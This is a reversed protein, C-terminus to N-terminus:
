EPLRLDQWGAVDCQGYYNWGVAVATGDPKLGVTHYCGACVTVIDSWSSIECQGFCNDGAAVVTGDSKIGVVHDFDVSIAVIDFWTEVDSQSYSDSGVIVVTGDAKLGVTNNNGAGIAVIDTWTSVDLQGESYVQGAVVLTGDAKLGVTHHFGASIAVIDSWSDVDCQGYNNLGVAVVTGDAKLGVTFNQGASVAVIDSWASVDCQGDRNWGVAVVTGDTKLGVTHAGLVSVAVIDSWSDVDCQGYYNSGVAVVTGDAKLGVTIGSDASITERVTIADWCAFSRERADRFHAIAYFLTAAEYYEGNELHAEAQLYTITLRCEEAKEESDKYSGLSDFIDAAESYKEQDMLEEAQRYDLERRCLAAKKGSDEYDKLSEFIEAARSYNEQEMLKEARSYRNAPLLFIVIVAVALVAALAAALRGLRKRDRFPAEKESITNREEGSIARPLTVTKDQAPKKETASGEWPSCIVAVTEERQPRMIDVTKDRPPPKGVISEEQPRSAQESATSGRKRLAPIRAKSIHQAAETRAPFLDALFSDMDPYRDRPRLSFGKELAKRQHSALGAISSWDPDIGETMRLTAEEPVTGTLCFWVTACMAYEDTWPGLSGRTNYQEMPAFGHKLIAETSKTLNKDVHPNNVTRVAGFDLLKAGGAPDLIINDPSIDRHVIGGKHIVALAEMVPRLIRFTEDVSLRGGRNQVYKALDVGKVFKMVIYATNNEEMFDLINVIQPINQFRALANAERLFRERSEEYHPIMSRTICSVQTSVASNRYVLGSPFFEKLAVQQQTLHDWALYTIGFGGQGLVRGAQYRQRLKTGVSLQHEDNQGHEPYGCYPCIRTQIEKMCSICRMAM